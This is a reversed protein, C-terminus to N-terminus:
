GIHFTQWENSTKIVALDGNIAMVSPDESGELPETLWNIGDSSAVLVLEPMEFVPPPPMWDSADIAAQRAPLVTDMIISMPVDIIENGDPDVITVTDGEVIAFDASLGDFVGSVEAVIDGTEADIVTLDATGNAHGFLHLLKGDLEVEVDFEVPPQSNDQYQHVDVVTIAGRDGPNFYVGQRFDTGLDLSESRTWSSGDPVGLWRVPGSPGDASLLVGGDVAVVAGLFQSTPPKLSKWTLGDPSFMIKSEGLLRGFGQGIFGADTGVIEELGEGSTGTLPMSVLQSDWSGTTISADARGYDGFDGLYQQIEIPDVGLEEWMYFITDTALPDALVPDTADPGAVPYTPTPVGGPSVPQTSTSAAGAGELLPMPEGGFEDGPNFFHIELGDVTSRLDFIDSGDRIENPVLSWLDVNVSSEVVALWGDANYTLSRLWQNSSVYAPLDASPESIEFTQWGTLDQTVSVTLSVQGPGSGSETIAFREPGFGVGSSDASQAIVLHAGDSVVRDIRADAVPLSFGPIDSWSLGDPSTQAVFSSTGGSQLSGYLDALAPDSAVMDIAQQLLGSEELAAMAGDLTTAGSARVADVIEPPFSEAYPSDPGPLQAPEVVTGLTLFGDGWPVTWAEGGYGYALDGEIPDVASAISSREVQAGGDASAPATTTSASGSAPAVGAAVHLTAGDDRFLPRVGVAAGVVLAMAGAVGLARRRRSHRQGIREVDALPIPEVGIAEAAGSLHSKLEDDFSPM